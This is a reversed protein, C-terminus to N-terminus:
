EDESDPVEAATELTLYIAYVPSLNGNKSEYTEETKTAIAIWEEGDLRHVKARGENNNIDKAEKYAMSANNYTRVKLSKGVHRRCLQTAADWVSDWKSARTNDVEPVDEFVLDFAELLNEDAKSIRAM